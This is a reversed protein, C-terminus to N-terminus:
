FSFATQTTRHLSRKQKSKSGVVNLRKELYREAMAQRVARREVADPASLAVIRFAFEDKGTVAPFDGLEECAWGDFEDRISKALFADAGAALHDVITVLYRDVLPAFELYTAAGGIVFTEDGGAAMTAALAENVSNVLRCTETSAFLDYSHSLVLNHRGKLCGGISEYTRRGMIVANGM